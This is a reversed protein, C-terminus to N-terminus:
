GTWRIEIVVEEDPRTTVRIRARSACLLDDSFWDKVLSDLKNRGRSGGWSSPDTTVSIKQRLRNRGTPLFWVDFLKGEMFNPRDLRSYRTRPRGKIKYRVLWGQADYISPGDSTMGESIM